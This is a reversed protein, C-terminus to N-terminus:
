APPLAPERARHAHAPLMTAQPAGALLPRSDAPPLAGPLVRGPDRLSTQVGVVPSLALIGDDDTHVL